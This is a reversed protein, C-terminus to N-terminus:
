ITVLSLLAAAAHNEAQSPPIQGGDAWAAVRKGVNRLVQQTNSFTLVHEAIAFGAEMQTRWDNTKTFSKVALPTSLAQVHPPLPRAARCAPGMGPAPLTVALRHTDKIAKTTDWRHAQSPLPPTSPSSGGGEAGAAHKANRAQAVSPMRCPDCLPMSQVHTLWLVAGPQPTPIHQGRVLAMLRRLILRKLALEDQAARTDRNRSRKVGARPGQTGPGHKDRADKLQQAWWQADAGPALCPHVRLHEAHAEDSSGQPFASTFHVIIVRAPQPAMHDLTGDSRLLTPQLLGLPMDDPVTYLQTPHMISAPWSKPHRPDAIPQGRPVPSASAAPPMAVWLPLHDKVNSNRAHSTALHVFPLSEHHIQSPFKEERKNHPMCNYPHTVLLNSAEFAAPLCFRWLAKAPAHSPPLLFASLNEDVEITDFHNRSSTTSASSVSVAVDDSASSASAANPLIPPFHQLGVQRRPSPLAAMKEVFVPALLGLIREQTIKATTHAKILLCLTLRQQRRWALVGDIIIGRAPCRQRLSCPFLYRGRATSLPTPDHQQRCVLVDNRQCLESKGSDDMKIHQAHSGGLMTSFHFLRRFLVRLLEWATPWMFYANAVM